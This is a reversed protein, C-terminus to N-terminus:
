YMAGKLARFGVRGTGPFLSGQSSQGRGICFPKKAAHQRDVTALTEELDLRRRPSHADFSM